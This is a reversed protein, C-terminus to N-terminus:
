VALQAHAPQLAAFWARSDLLRIREPVLEANESPPQLRLREWVDGPIQRARAPCLWSYVCLLGKLLMTDGELRQFLRDWNLVHGNAYLVNFVDIWDCHDRQVIYLKCWVFEVLPLLRLTQDKLEIPQARNFWQDDVSARQNAMAWILDVIFEGKCSRHIWQRDYALQSFYDQFGREELCRVARERDAPRIYLDIDKTNRWRGSYAAMAFGGGLLCPVGGERLGRIAEVYATWAEDPVTQAWELNIIPPARM